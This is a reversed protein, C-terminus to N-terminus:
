KNKQSLVEGPFERLFLSSHLVPWLTPNGLKLIYKDSCSLVLTIGIIEFSFITQIIETLLIKSNSSIYRIM